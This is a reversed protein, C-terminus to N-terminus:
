PWSKETSRQRNLKNKSDRGNESCRRSRKDSKRVAVAAEDDKCVVVAEDHSPGALPGRCQKVERFVCRSQNVPAVHRTMEARNPLM